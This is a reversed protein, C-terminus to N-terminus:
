FNRQNPIPAEIGEEKLKNFVSLAIESNTKLTDSFTTWYLLAFELNGDDGFGYFFTNPAPDSFTKPHLSAVENFLEIVANPDAKASTRMRIKSRRNRDSLTWNVVKKSILDGNPIIAEAGSYTRISSSRVGINTVEGMENDVEIADGLNIPREFGLNIWCYFKFSCKTFWVRYWRYLVLVSIGIKFCRVWCRFIGFLCRFFNCYNKIDILYGSSSRSTFHSAVM